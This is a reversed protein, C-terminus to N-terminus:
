LIIYESRKFSCASLFIKLIILVSRKGWLLCAYLIHWLPHAGWHTWSDDKRRLRIRLPVCYVPYAWDCPRQRVEAIPSNALTPWRSMLGWRTFSNHWVTRSASTLHWTAIREEATSLCLTSQPISFTQLWLQNIMAWHATFINVIGIQYVSVSLIELYHCLIHHIKVLMLLWSHLTNHDGLRWTSCRDSASPNGVYSASWGELPPGGHGELLPDSPGRQCPGQPGEYGGLHCVCVWM